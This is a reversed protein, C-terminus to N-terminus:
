LWISLFELGSVVNADISQPNLLWCSSLAQCSHEGVCSTRQDIWVNRYSWLVAFKQLDNVERLPLLSRRPEHDNLYDMDIESPQSEPQMKRDLRLLDPTRGQKNQDVFRVINPTRNNIGTHRNSEPHRTSSSVWKIQVMWRDKWNLNSYVRSSKTQTASVTTPLVLWSYGGHSLNECTESKKSRKISLM